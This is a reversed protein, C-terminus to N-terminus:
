VTTSLMALLALPATDARLTRAGLSHPAFGLAVAQAEEHPTLGGEPGSLALVRHADVTMSRTSPAQTTSLVWRTEGPSTRPLGELWANLTSIPAIVPVRNRGCQECAAIVVAQWHAAKKAAREGTLRLVSRETILPQISAVGLETAKEVLPDMRDNTPMGLALHTQISTEREIAHHAAVSVIVADKQMQEIQAQWEGGVGDFLTVADGRDLRLVRVHRAVAAPM